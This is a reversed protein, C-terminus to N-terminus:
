FMFKTRHTKFHENQKEHIWDKTRTIEKGISKMQDITLPNRPENILDNLGGLYDMM